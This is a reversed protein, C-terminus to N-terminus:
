ALRGYIFDDIPQDLVPLQMRRYREKMIASALCGTCAKRNNYKDPPLINGRKSVNSIVGDCHPCDRLEYEYASPRYTM